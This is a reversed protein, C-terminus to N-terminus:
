HLQFAGWFTLMTDTLFDDTINLSVSDGVTLSVMKAVWVPGVTTNPFTGEVLHIESKGFSANRKLIVSVTQSKKQLKSFTVQAYMFYLGNETCHISDNQLILSCSTCRKYLDQWPQSKSPKVLQIYSLSSRISKLPAPVTNVPPGTPSVSGPKLTTVTGETSKPKISLVLAAMVVMAVTLIGCWVQLLVYKQSSRSQGEMGTHAASETDLIMQQKEKISM